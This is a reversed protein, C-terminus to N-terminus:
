SLDIRWANSKFDGSDNRGDKLWSVVGPAFWERFCADWEAYPRINIHLEAGIHKRSPMNNATVLVHCRAVRALERCAAEDDPRVLHEIVDLMISVEFSKNHFPLAHAEAYVVHDGDILSPMIETGRVPKFGLRAAEDLMDGYGCSVDLLAGRVPLSALDSAADARRAAKMRYTGTAYARVYKDHEVRRLENITVM